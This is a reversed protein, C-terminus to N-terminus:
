NDYIDAGEFFAGWAFWYSNFSLSKQLKKGQLQGATAEGLVNWTSNTEKDKFAFPFTDANELEFTL